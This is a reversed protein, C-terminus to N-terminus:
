ERVREELVRDCVRRSPVEGDRQDGEPACVERGCRREGVAEGDDVGFEQAGNEVGGADDHAGTVGHVYDAEHEVPEVM